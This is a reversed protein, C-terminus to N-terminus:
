RIKWPLPLPRTDLKVATAAVQPTGGWSGSSCNNEYRFSKIDVLASPGVPGWVAGFGDSAAPPPSTLRFAGPHLNDASGIQYGTNFYPQGLCGDETYLLIANVDFGLSTSYNLQYWHGSLYRQVVNGIGVANEVGIITDDSAYVCLSFQCKHSTPDPEAEVAM